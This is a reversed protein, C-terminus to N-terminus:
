KTEGERIVNLLNTIIHITAFTLGIPVASFPIWMPLLMASSKQLAVNPSLIWKYSFYLIIFLFGLMSIHGLIILSKKVRESVFDLLFTVSAQSKYKLGLSGGIFSTWILLFISVEGAWSLPSNLFYRFAVAVIVIVVMCLMLFAGLYKEVEAITDSIKNM